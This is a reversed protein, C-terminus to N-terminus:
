VAEALNLAMFIIKTTDWLNVENWCAWFSTYYGLKQIFLFIFTQYQTVKSHDPDLDIIWFWESLMKIADDKGLTFQMLEKAICYDLHYKIM